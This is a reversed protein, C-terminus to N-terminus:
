KYRVSLRCNSLVPLMPIESHWPLQFPSALTISDGVTQGTGGLRRWLCASASYM